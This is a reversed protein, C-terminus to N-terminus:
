CPRRGAISHVGIRYLTNDVQLYENESARACEFYASARFKKRTLLLHRLGQKEVFPWM